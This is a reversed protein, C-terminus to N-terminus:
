SGNNPEVNNDNLLRWHTPMYYVYMYYDDIWWLNRWFAMTQVNREGNADDIKTEVDVREPPKRASTSIWGTM